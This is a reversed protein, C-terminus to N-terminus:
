YGWEKLKGATLGGDVSIIGSLAHSVAKVLMDFEINVLQGATKYKLNTNNWTHPVIVCSLSIGEAKQVTLSIGDLAIAAKAHFLSGFSKPVGVEIWGDEGKVTQKIKKIVGKTDVHGQVFHGGFKEGAAIAPEVNVFDGATLQALTTTEATQTSVDFVMVALENEVVTLCVGSISISDGIECNETTKPSEVYLRLTKDRRELKAVRGIERILGTFM